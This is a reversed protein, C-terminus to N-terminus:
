QPERARDIAKRLWDGAGLRIYKAKQAPTVRDRIVESKAVDEPLPPRGILPAPKTEDKKM